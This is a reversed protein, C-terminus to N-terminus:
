LYSHFGATGPYCTNISGDTEKGDYVREPV